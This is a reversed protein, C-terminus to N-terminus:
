EINQVQERMTAVRTKMDLLSGTFDADPFKVSLTSIERHMEQVLFDLTKGVNDNSKALMDFQEMHSYLRTIEEAVDVKEAFLVVERLVREDSGLGAEILLEKLRQKYEEVVFPARKEVAEVGERIREICARLQAELMKGERLKMQVVDELARHCVHLLNGADQTPAPTSKKQEHALLFELSVERMPDLGLTICTEEWFKKSNKLYEISHESFSPGRELSVFVTVQGRSISASVAKRIDQDFCLFEQPLRISIDLMKRNICQIEITWTGEPTELSARGYATMSRIM